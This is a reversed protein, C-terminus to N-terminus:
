DHSGRGIGNSMDIIGEAMPWMFLLAVFVLLVWIWEHKRAPGPSKAIACVITLATGTGKLLYWVALLYFIEKSM